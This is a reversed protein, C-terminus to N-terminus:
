HQQQRRGEEVGRCQSREKREKTKEKRGMKMETRRVEGHRAVNEYLRKESDQEQWDEYNEQEARGESLRRAVFDPTMCRHRM